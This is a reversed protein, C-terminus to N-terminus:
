IIFKNFQICHSSNHTTFKSPDNQLHCKCQEKGYPKLKLVEIIGGKKYYLVLNNGDYETHIAKSYLEPNIDYM